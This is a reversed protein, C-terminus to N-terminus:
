VLSISVSRCIILWLIGCSNLLAIVICCLVVIMQIGYYKFVYSLIRKLLLGPNKVKPRPAGRMSGRRGVKVEKVREEAM